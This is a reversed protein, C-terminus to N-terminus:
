RRRRPCARRTRSSLNTTPSTSPRTPRNAAAAGRAGSRRARLRLGQRRLHGRLRVSRSGSSWRCRGCGGPEPRRSPGADGRRHLARPHDLGRGRPPEGVAPQPPLVRGLLLGGQGTLAPAAQRRDDAEPLVPLPHGRRLGARQGPAWTESTTASASPRARSSRSRWPRRSRLETSLDKFTLEAGAGQYRARGRQRAGALHGGLWASPSTTPVSRSSTRTSRAAREADGGFRVLSFDTEVLGSRCRSGSRGASCTRGAARVTFGRVAFKTTVYLAAQEYAQRGAISGVNVIYGGDGLHPPCLRTM